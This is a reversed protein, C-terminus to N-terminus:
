CDFRWAVCRQEVRGVLRQLCMRVGVGMRRSVGIHVPVSESRLRTRAIRPDGASPKFGTVGEGADSGTVASTSVASHHPKLADRVSHIPRRNPDLKQPVRVFHHIPYGSGDDNESCGYSHQCTATVTLCTAFLRTSGRRRRCACLGDLCVQFRGVAFRDGIRRDVERAAVRRHGHFGDRASSQRGAAMAHVDMGHALALGAGNGRCATGCAVEVGGSPM